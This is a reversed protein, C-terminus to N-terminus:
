ISAKIILADLIDRAIILQSVEVSIAPTTGVIIKGTAEEKTLPIWEEDHLNPEERDDDKLEAGESIHDTYNINNLGLISECKVLNISWAFVRADRGRGDDDKFILDKDILYTKGVTVGRNIQGIFGVLVNTLRTSPFHSVTIM